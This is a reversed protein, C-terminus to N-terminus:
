CIFANLQCSHLVHHESASVNAPLAELAMVFARSTNSCSCPQQPTAGRRLRPHWPCRSPHVDRLAVLEARLISSGDACCHGHPFRTSNRDCLHTHMGRDLHHTFLVSDLHPHRQRIINFAEGKSTHGQPAAQLGAYQLLDAHDSFVITDRASYWLTDADPARAIAADLLHAAEACTNLHFWLTNGAAAGHTAGQYHSVMFPWVFNVLLPRPRRRGGWTPQAHVDQCPLYDDCLTCRVPGCRAETSCSQLLSVEDHPQEELM